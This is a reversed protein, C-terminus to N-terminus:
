LEDDLYDILDKVRDYNVDYDDEGIRSESQVYLYVIDSLTGNVQVYFDDPFGWFLSIFRVQIFYTEKTLYAWEWDERKDNLWDKVKSMLESGTINEFTVPVEINRETVSDKSSTGLRCCNTSLDCGSPFQTKEKDFGIYHFLILLLITSFGVFHLVWFIIRVTRKRARSMFDFDFEIFSREEQLTFWYSFSCYILYVVALLIGMWHEWMGASIIEAVSLIGAFCFFLQILVVKKKATKHEPPDFLDIPEYTVEETM